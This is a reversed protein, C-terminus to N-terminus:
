RKSEFKSGGCLDFGLGERGTVALGWGAVKGSEDEQTKKQYRM